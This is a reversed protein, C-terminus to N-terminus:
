VPRNITRKMIFILT